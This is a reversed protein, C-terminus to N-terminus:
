VTGDIGGFLSRLEMAPAIDEAEYEGISELSDDSFFFIAGDEFEVIPNSGTSQVVGRQGIYNYMSEVWAIYKTDARAVVVEDGVKFKAM